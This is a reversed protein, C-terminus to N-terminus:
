FNERFKCKLTYNYVFIHSGSIPFIPNNLSPLFFLFYQCFTCRSTLFIGLEGKGKKNKRRRRRKKKSYLQILAWVDRKNKSKKKKKNVRLASNIFILRCPCNEFLITRQIGSNSLIMTHVKKHPESKFRMILNMKIFKIPFFFYEGFMWSFTTSFPFHRKM